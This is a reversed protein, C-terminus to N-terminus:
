FLSMQEPVFHWTKGKETESFIIPICYPLEHVYCVNDIYRTKAHEIREQMENGSLGDCGIIYNYQEGYRKNREEPTMKRVDFIKDRQVSYIRM